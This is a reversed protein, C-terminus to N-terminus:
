GWAARIVFAALRLVASKVPFAFRLAGREPMLVSEILAGDELKGLFKVSKDYRSVQFSDAAVGTMSLSNPFSNQISKPLTTANWPEPNLSKYAERYLTDAHLKPCSWVQECMIELEERSLDYFDQM